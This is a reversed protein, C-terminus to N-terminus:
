TRRRRNPLDKTLTLEVTGDRYGRRLLRAKYIRYLQDTAAEVDMWAYHHDVAWQELEHLLDSAAVWAKVGGPGVARGEFRRPLLYPAGWSTNLVVNICWEDEFLEGRMVAFFGRGLYRFGWVTNGFRKV